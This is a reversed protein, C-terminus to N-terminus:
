LEKGNGLMVALKAKGRAYHTRASGVSVRMVGAAEEVTLDHYFVLQLVERQRHTLRGLARHLGDRRSALESEVDAAVFPNLAVVGAEGKGRGGEREVLLGRLWARRRESAATRRIVGFIWTRFSSRAEYRARGDLVSLYVTQLVEEADDRNRGCCSMAWGFCDAHVRELQVRLEVDDM